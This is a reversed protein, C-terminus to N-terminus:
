GGPDESDETIFDGLQFNLLIKVKFNETKICQLFKSPGRSQNM